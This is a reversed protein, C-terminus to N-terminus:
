FWCRWCKWVLGRPRAWCPRSRRFMEQDAFSSSSSSGPRPREAAPSRRRIKRSCLRWRFNTRPVKLKPALITKFPTLDKNLSITTIRMAELGFGRSSMPVPFIVLPEIINVSACQICDVTFHISPHRPDKLWLLYNKYSLEQISKPLEHWQKWFRKSVKSTM